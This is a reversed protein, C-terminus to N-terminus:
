KLQPGASAFKKSKEDNFREFNKIFAEALSTVTTKYAAQDKWAKSPDLLDSSVGTVGKPIKLKFVETETYEAKDLDGNHIADM